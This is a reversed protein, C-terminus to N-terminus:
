GIYVAAFAVIYLVGPEPKEGTGTNRTADPLNSLSQQVKLLSICFSALVKGISFHLHM